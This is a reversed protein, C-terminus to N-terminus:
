KTIDRKNIVVENSVNQINLHYLKIYSLIM